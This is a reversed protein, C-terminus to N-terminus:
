TSPMGRSVLLSYSWRQRRLAWLWVSLLKGGLGGSSVTKDRTQFNLPATKGKDYAKGEYISCITYFCIWTRTKWLAQSNNWGTEPSRATSVCSPKDLLLLLCELTLIWLGLVLISRQTALQLPAPCKREAGRGGQEMRKEWCTSDKYHTM